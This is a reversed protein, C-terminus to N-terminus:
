PLLLNDISAVELDHIVQEGGFGTRLYDVFLSLVFSIPLLLVFRGEFGFYASVVVEVAFGSRLLTQFHRLLVRSIVAVM